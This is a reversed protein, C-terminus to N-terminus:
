SSTASMFISKSSFYPSAYPFSQSNALNIIEHLRLQVFDAYRAILPMVFHRIFEADSVAYGLFFPSTKTGGMYMIKKLLFAFHYASKTSRLLTRDSIPLVM